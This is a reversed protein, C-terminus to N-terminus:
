TLFFFDMQWRVNVSCFTIHSTAGRGKGGGKIELAIPLAAQVKSACQKTADSSNSVSTM